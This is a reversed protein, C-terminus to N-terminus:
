AACSGRQAEGKMWIVLAFRSTGVVPLSRHPTFRDLFLVSGAPCNPRVRALQNLSDESISFSRDTQDHVIPRTRRGQIIELGGTEPGTDALPIWATVCVQSCSTGDDRAVDSHWPHLHEPFVSIGARVRVVQGSLREETLSQATERLKESNVLGQLRPGRHADTCIAARLLNAQSRDEQWIRDLRSGLPEDPFSLDFPLYLAQSIRDIHEAIDMAAARVQEPDFVSEITYGDAAFGEKSM